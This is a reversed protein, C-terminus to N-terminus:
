TGKDRLLEPLQPLLKAARVLCNELQFPLRAREDFAGNADVTAQIANPWRKRLARLNETPNRWSKKIQVSFLPLTPPYPANWQKLICAVMWGPLSNGTERMPLDQIQAGLLRNALRITSLVWSAWLENRGLCREWNFTAPRSELAAAVDCLWLPRWAGHKLLHLCLVRLHDEAGLVRVLTGELKVLESCDYLEDFSRCGLKSIEDHELDVWFRRYEPSNLVAQATAHQAPAVCLDIDGTPRLGAEPYLRGIAWGKLLIPEVGASRLVRFVEAVQHEHEAAHIAYHLYTEQLQKLAIIFLQDSFHRLRRWALAGAGSALLLPTIRAVEEAPMELQPLASRWAGVLVAAVARGSSM